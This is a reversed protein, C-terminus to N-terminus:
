KRSGADFHKGFEREARALLTGVSNQSVKLMSAIEAYSAGSYRLLLIQADRPKMESLIKRVQQKEQQHEVIVEPNQPQHAEIVLKGAETEYRQRRQRARLANLGLNISVRYLWGGLNSRNVPPRNHLQVFAELVLEEAETWDGVVHYVTTCLRNWHEHFLNNFDAEGKKLEVTKRQSLTMAM